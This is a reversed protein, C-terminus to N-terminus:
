SLIPPGALDVHRRAPALLNLNADPMALRVSSAAGSSGASEGVAASAEISAPASSTQPPGPEAM